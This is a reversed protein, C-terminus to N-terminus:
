ITSKQEYSGSFLHWYGTQSNWSSSVYSFTMREPIIKLFITAVKTELTPMFFCKGHLILSINSDIPVCGLTIDLLEEVLVICHGLVTSNEFSTLTSINSWAGHSRWRNKVM